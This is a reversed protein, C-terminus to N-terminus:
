EYAIRLWVDDAEHQVNLNRKRGARVMCAAEGSSVSDPCGFSLISNTICHHSEEENRCNHADMENAVHNGELLVTSTPKSGDSSSDKACLASFRVRKKLGSIRNKRVPRLVHVELVTARRLMVIEDPAVPVPAMMESAKIVGECPQFLHGSCSRRLVPVPRDACIPNGNLDLVAVPIDAPKVTM